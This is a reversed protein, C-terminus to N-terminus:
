GSPKSGSVPSHSSPYSFCRSAHSFCYASARWRQSAWVLCTWVARAASESAGAAGAVLPAAAACVAWGALASSGCPVRAM